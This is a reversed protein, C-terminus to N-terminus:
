FVNFNIRMKESLRRSAIQTKLENELTNYEVNDDILASYFASLQPELSQLAPQPRLVSTSQRSINDIHRLQYTLLDAEALSNYNVVKLKHEPEFGYKNISINAISGNDFDIRLRMTDPMTSFSSYVNVLVRHVNARVLPLLLSVETRAVSVLNTEDPMSISSQIDLPHDCLSHLGSFVGSYMAPHGIFVKTQAEDRLRLLSQLEEDSFNHVSHIFVYLSHRIAESILPMYLNDDIDFVVAQCQSCLDGFSQFVDFSTQRYRDILLCPDYVGMFCFSPMKAMADIYGQANRLGVIGIKLM